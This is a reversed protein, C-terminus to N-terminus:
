ISHHIWCLLSEFLDTLLIRVFNFLKYLCSWFCSSMACFDIKSCCISSILSSFNIKIIHKSAVLKELSIISWLITLLKWSIKFQTFFKFIDSHFIRFWDERFKSTRISRILRVVSFSSSDSLTFSKISCSSFFSDKSRSSDCRFASRKNTCMNWELSVTDFCILKRLFSISFSEAIFINVSRRFKRWLM